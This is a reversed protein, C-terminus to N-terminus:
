KENYYSYNLEYYESPIGSFQVKHKDIVDIRCLGGNKIMNNYMPAIYLEKQNLAISYEKYISNYLEINKFYYLGSSCYNSIPIKETTEIVIDSDDLTKAYSWNNGSGIFVELVGDNNLAKKSFTFDQRITDINFIVIPENVYEHCKDLCGLYVTEAQGATPENLVSIHYKEIGLLACEEKIFEKTNFLDRVIFLFTASKFYNEFSSVSLNFLSRNKVYLMYKPLVFGEKKFRSSLGAM